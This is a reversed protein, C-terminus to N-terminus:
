DTSKYTQAAERFRALAAEIRMRKAARRDPTAVLDREYEHKTCPNKLPDGLKTQLEDLINAFHRKKFTDDIKDVSASLRAVADELKELRQCLADVADADYSDLEDEPDFVRLAYSMEKSSLVADIRMSLEKIFDSDILNIYPFGRSTAAAVKMWFDQKLADSALELAEGDRTVAALVVERDARLKLSAYGFAEGNQTVAALVIERDARHQRSAYKLAEGNQTVAALVIERDNQLASYYAYQLASGYNAVAALVVERDDQLADSAYRLARGDEKVTALVFERDNKLADSAWYMSMADSYEVFDEFSEDESEDESEDNSEEVSEDGSENSSEDSSEDDYEANTTLQPGQVSLRSLSPLM